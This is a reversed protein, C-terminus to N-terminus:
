SRFRSQIHQRQNSHHQSLLDFILRHDTYKGTLTINESIIMDNRIFNIDKSSDDINVKAEAKTVDAKSVLHKITEKIRNYHDGPLGKEFYFTLEVRNIDRNSINDTFEIAESTTQNRPRIGIFSDTLCINFKKIIEARDLLQEAGERPFMHFHLEPISNSPNVSLLTNIYEALRNFGAVYRNSVWLLVSLVPDVLFYTVEAINCEEDDLNLQSLKCHLDSEYPYSYERDKVFLGNILGNYTPLMDPVDNALIMYYRNQNLTLVRSGATNQKDLSLQGLFDFASVLHNEGLIRNGDREVCDLFLIKIDKKKM